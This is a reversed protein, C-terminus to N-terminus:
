VDSVRRKQVVPLDQRVFVWFAAFAMVIEGAIAAPPPSQAVLISIVAGAWVVFGLFSDFKSFWAPLEGGLVASFSNYLQILGVILFAGAWVPEPAIEAMVAYTQRTFTDGPWVLMVAWIVSSWGLMVQAPRIDTTWFMNGFLKSCMMLRNTIRM